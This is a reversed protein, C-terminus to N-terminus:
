RERANVLMAPFGADTSARVLDQPKAQTEDYIVTARKAEYDVEAKRVGKVKELAKKVTFPCAPCTMGPVALTVTQLAATVPGALALLALPILLKKM